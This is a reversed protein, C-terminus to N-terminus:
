GPRRNGPRTGPPEPGAGPRPGRATAAPGTARRDTCWREFEQLQAPDPYVIRLSGPDTARRLARWAERGGASLALAQRDAVPAEVVQRAGAACTKFAVWFTQEHWRRASLVFEDLRRAQEQLAPEESAADGGAAGADRVLGALRGRFQAWASVADALEIASSTPSVSPLALAGLAAGEKAVVAERAAAQAQKVAAERWCWAGPARGRKLLPALEALAAM